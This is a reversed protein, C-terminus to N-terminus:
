INKESLSMNTKKWYFQYHEFETLAFELFQDTKIQKIIKDTLKITRIYSANKFISEAIPGRINERAVYVRGPKM